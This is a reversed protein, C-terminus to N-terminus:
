PVAISPDRIVCSKAGYAVWSAPEIGYSGSWALARRFCAPTSPSRNGITVVLEYETMKRGAWAISGALTGRTRIPPHAINTVAQGLLTGLPGPVPHPGPM